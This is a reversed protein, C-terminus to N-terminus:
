APHGPEFRRAQSFSFLGQRGGAGGAVPDLVFGGHDGLALRDVVWGEVWAACDDLIPAGTTGPRWACSRFKDVADGTQEGFHAALEDQDRGLLHVALAPARGAVAFTHNRVSLCVLLRAPAMACQTAFGVLCGSPGEPGAATVVFMPYDLRDVLPALPDM